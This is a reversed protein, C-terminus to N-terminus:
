AYPDKKFASSLHGVADLNVGRKQDSSKQRRVSKPSSDVTKLNAKSEGRRESSKRVSDLMKKGYMAYALIEAADEKYGGNSDMFLEDVRGNVLLNQIKGIESRSFDPYEEKLNKVSLNATKKLNEYEDRQQQAFDEREKEISDRDQNFMRKTTRALLEIRDDFDEDDLRDDNYMDVLENYEDELYHQVLSEPDQGRFDDSFDLRSNDLFAETYDGGNAWIQISQKIEHPLAQLDSSLADYEKSAEAGEQAQNRWTDVSSFFKSPDEIGFKSSIMDIMEDPVEFEYSLEKQKKRTKKIGFVDSDTEEEEEVEDYEEEYEEEVEEENGVEETQNISSMLDQYEQSNAFDPDMKALSELQRVQDQMESSLDEMAVQEPQQQELESSVAEVEKEFNEDSM